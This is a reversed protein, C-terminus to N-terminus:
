RKGRHTGAARAAVDIAARAWRALETPSELVAPPVAYYRMTAPRHAYPKFPRMGAAVYRPQSTEDVKLYLVDGAVIGFFLGEHYLGLGGFMPRPVVRGLEELQDLVYARFGDSVKLPHLKRSRSPPRAMPDRM